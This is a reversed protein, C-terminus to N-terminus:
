PGMRALGRRESFAVETKLDWIGDRGISINRFPAPIRKADVAGTEVGDGVADGTVIGESAAAEENGEAGIASYVEDRSAAVSRM